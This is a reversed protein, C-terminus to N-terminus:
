MKKTDAFDYRVFKIVTVDGEGEINTRQLGITVGNGSQQDIHRLKFCAGNKVNSTLDFNADHVYGKKEDKVSVVFRARLIKFHSPGAYNGADKAAKVLVSNTPDPLSIQLFEVGTRADKLTSLHREQGLALDLLM